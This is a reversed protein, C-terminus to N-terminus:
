GKKDLLNELVKRDKVAETLLEQLSEIEHPLEAILKKSNEIKESLDAIEKELLTAKLSLLGIKLLKVTKEQSGLKDYMDKPINFKIKFNRNRLLRM